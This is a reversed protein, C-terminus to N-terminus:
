RWKLLAKSAVAMGNSIRWPILYKDGFYSDTITLKGKQKSIPTLKVNQRVPLGDLLLTYMRFEENEPLNDFLNGSVPWIQPYYMDVSVGQIQRVVFAQGDLTIIEDSSQKIPILPELVPRFGVSSDRYNEGCTDWSRANHFGRITCPNNAYHLPLKTDGFSFMDRWHWLYDSEGAATLADDWENKTGRKGVHPLRLLYRYGGVEVEKGKVMGQAELESFSINPLVVRDAILLNMGDPKVWTIAEDGKSNSCRSLTLAPPLVTQAPTLISNYGLEGFQM